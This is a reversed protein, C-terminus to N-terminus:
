NKIKKIIFKIKTKPSNNVIYEIKQVFFYVDYNLLKIIRTPIQYFACTLTMSLQTNKGIICKYGEPTEKKDTDTYLSPKIKNRLIKVGQIMFSIEKNGRNTLKIITKISHVEGDTDLLKINEIKLKFLFISFLNIYYDFFVLALIPLIDKFEIQSGTKKTISEWCLYLLFVIILFSLRIFFGKM